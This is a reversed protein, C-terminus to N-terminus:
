GPPFSISLAVPSMPLDGVSNLAKHGARTTPTRIERPVRSLGRLTEFRSNRLYDCINPRVYGPVTAELIDTMMTGVATEPKYRIGAALAEIM